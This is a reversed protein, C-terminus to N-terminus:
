ARIAIRWSQRDKEDKQGANEDSACQSAARSSPKRVPLNRTQGLRVPLDIPRPLTLTLGAATASLRTPM